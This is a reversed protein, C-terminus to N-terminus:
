KNVEILKINLKYCKTFAIISMRANFGYGNSTCIDCDDHFIFCKDCLIKNCRTNFLHVADIDKKCKECSIPM